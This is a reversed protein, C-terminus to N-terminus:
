GPCISAAAESAAAVGSKQFLTPIPGLAKSAPGAAFGLGLGFAGLAVNGVRGAALNAGFSLTAAVNSVAEAGIAVSAFGIGGFVTESTFLAAGGSALAVRKAGNSVSDAVNAVDTWFSNTQGCPLLQIQTKQLMGRSGSGGGGGVDGGDGQKGVADGCSGSYSYSTYGSVTTVDDSGVGVSDWFDQELSCGGGLDYYDAGKFAGSPDRGNIPDGGVYAYPNLDSQYGVPDTQLFRGLTPNYMRAKFDYLRAQSTATADAYGIV